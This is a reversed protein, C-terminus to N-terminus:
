SQKYLTDIAKIKACFRHKKIAGLRSPLRLKAVTATARRNLDVCILLENQQFGLKFSRPYSLRQAM